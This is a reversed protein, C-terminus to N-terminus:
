NPSTGSEICLSGRQWEVGSVWAFLRQLVSEPRRHHHETFQPSSCLAGHSQCPSRHLKASEISKLWLLRWKLKVHVFVLNHPVSSCNMWHTPSNDLLAFFVFLYFTCCVSHIKVLWIIAASDSNSAVQQLVPNLSSPICCFSSPMRVNYLM